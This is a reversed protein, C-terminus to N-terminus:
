AALKQKNLTGEVLEQLGLFRALEDARILVRRGARIFKLDGLYRWYKINHVSVRAIDAAEKETLLEPFQIMAM